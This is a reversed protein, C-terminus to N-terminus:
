FCYILTSFYHHVIFNFIPILDVWTLKKHLVGLLQAWSGVCVGIKALDIGCDATVDLDDLFIVPIFQFHVSDWHLRDVILGLLIILRITFCRFSCHLRSCAIFHIGSHGDKLVSKSLNVNQRYSFFWNWCHENAEDLLLIHPIEVSAIDLHM